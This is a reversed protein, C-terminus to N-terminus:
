SKTYKNQYHCRMLFRNFKEQRTISQKVREINKKEKNEILVQGRRYLKLSFNMFPLLFSFYYINLLGGVFSHEEDNSFHITKKKDNILFTFRFTFNQIKAYHRNPVPLRMYPVDNNPVFRFRERNWISSAKMIRNEYKKGNKNKMTQSLLLYSEWIQSLFSSSSFPCFVSSFFIIGRSLIM